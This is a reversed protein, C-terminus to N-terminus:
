RIITKFAEYIVKPNRYWKYVPNVKKNLDLLKYVATQASRVSYELTFVIDDKIETYQWLFAFNLSTEPVVQPRDWLNRPMFQASVYPTYAPICVSTELIKELHNELWLHYVLETLIEEWTCDEIKKKIYNWKKQPSLVYWWTVMSNKKEDEFYSKLHFWISIFWNSDVITTWAFATNKDKIYKAILDMIFSEKFTITFSTWWTKKHDYIFNNPNGFERNNKSINEWLGWSLSKKDLKKEPVVHMWWISSSAKMSWLSIFVKDDESVNIIETKEKRSLEIEVIKKKWNIEEFNLNTIKTENYFKVNNKKLYDVIPLVLSEYQNLPTIKLPELTHFYECCHISRLVYRKMEILSSWPAFAFVTSFEYWFNSNFFEKDFYENIKTSKLTKESIFLLKALRYRNKFSLELKKAEKVTKNKLLRAKFYVKNKENYKLTEEKLNEYKEKPSPIRELLDMFCTYARDEFVRIWRMTYWEWNKTEKADLAWGYLKAKEFITIQKWDINWEQILYVATSLGAIWSWVIYYKPKSQKM